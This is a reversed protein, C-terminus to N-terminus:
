TPLRRPRAGLSEGEAKLGDRFGGRGEAERVRRSGFEVPMPLSV